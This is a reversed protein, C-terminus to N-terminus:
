PRAGPASARPLQVRAALWADLAEEDFRVLRGSLRVHPPGKGQSVWSYLTGIKIGLKKAAEEYGILRM